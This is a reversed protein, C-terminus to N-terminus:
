HNSCFFFSTYIYVVLTSGVIQSCTSVRTKELWAFPLSVCIIGTLLQSMTMVLLVNTLSKEERERERERERGRKRERERGRKVEGGGMLHM